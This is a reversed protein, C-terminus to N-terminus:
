NGMSWKGNSKEQDSPKSKPIEGKLVPVKTLTGGVMKWEYAEEAALSSFSMTLFLTYNLYPSPMGM